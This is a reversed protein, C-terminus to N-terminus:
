PSISNHIYESDAFKEGDFSAPIILILASKQRKFCDQKQTMELTATNLRCSNQLKKKFLTSSGYLWYLFRSM